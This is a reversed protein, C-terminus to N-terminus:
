GVDLGDNARIKAHMGVNSKERVSLNVDFEGVAASHLERCRLSHDDLGSVISPHHTVLGRHQDLEIELSLGRAHTSHRLTVSM